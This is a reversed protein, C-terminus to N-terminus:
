EELREPVPELREPTSHKCCDNIAKKTGALRRLVLLLDADDASVGPNADPLRFSDFIENHETTEEKTAFLKVVHVDADDVMDREIFGSDDIM